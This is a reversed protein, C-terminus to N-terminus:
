APRNGGARPAAWALALMVGIMLVSYEMGNRGGGVVFWGEPAHVMIIGATLEAAFYLAIPRTFRGSALVLSGGIEMATILYAVVAPIHNAELFGGFGAVGGAIARYCGHILMNAAVLLRLAALAQQSRPSTTM